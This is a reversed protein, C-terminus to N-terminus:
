ESEKAFFAAAKKLIERDTRLSENERRLKENERELRRLKQAADERGSPEPAPAARAAKKRKAMADRKCWGRLTWHNVGLDRAVANITRSEKRVLEVADIRFNEDYQTTVRM